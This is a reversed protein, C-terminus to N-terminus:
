HEINWSIGAIKWSGDVRHLIWLHRGQFLVTEGDMDIRTIFRATKWAHESGAQISEDFVSIDRIPYTARITDLAPEIGEIPPGDDPWLTIDACMHDRLARMDQALEAKLWAAQIALIELKDTETAM